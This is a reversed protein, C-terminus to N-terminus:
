PVSDAVRPALFAFFGHRGPANKGRSIDSIFLIVTYVNPSQPPPRQCRVKRRLAIYYLSIPKKNESRYMYGSFLAHVLLSCTCCSYAIASPQHNVVGMDKEQSTQKKPPLKTRTPTFPEVPVSDKTHPHTDLLKRASDTRQAEVFRKM